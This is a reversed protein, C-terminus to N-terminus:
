PNLDKAKDRFWRLIDDYAPPTVLFVEIDTKLQLQVRDEDRMILLGAEDETLNGDILEAAHQLRKSSLGSYFEFVKSFVEKTRVVSLCNAWDLFPGFIEEEEVPFLEAGEGVKKKIFQLARENITTLADYAEEGGVSISECFIKKIKGAAELRETQQAAEDWFRNVLGSYDDPADKLPYINPVCYLKRKGAFSEAAPREIKGLESM